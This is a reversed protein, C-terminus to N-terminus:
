ENMENSGWIFGIFFFCVCLLWEGKAERVGWGEGVLVFLVGGEDENFLGWCGNKRGNGMVVLGGCFVWKVFSCVSGLWRWCCGGVEGVMFSM